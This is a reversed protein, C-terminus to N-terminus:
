RSPFHPRWADSVRRPTGPVRRERLAEHILTVTRAPSSYVDRSTLVIIRWGSGDIAARRDLDRQWQSERQAHHRGDYEVILRAEPWSLDYKMVIDGNEDRVEHNVAPEPLGALVILLRLRSEMPSDVGARVLCAGARARHSGAGTAAAATARLKGTTTLRRKVMADGLVVLDVLSLVGALQLFVQEPTSAPVGRVRRAPGAPDVHFQIGERKRRLKAARVSVHEREDHPIPLGDLRAASHCSAWAGPGAALVAAEVREAATPAVRADVYVGRFIRRFRSGRLLRPDLGAAVADARTFPRRTDLPKRQHM